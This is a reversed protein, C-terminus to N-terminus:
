FVAFRRWKPDASIQSFPAIIPRKPISTKLSPTIAHSHISAQMHTTDNISCGGLIQWKNSEVLTFVAAVAGLCREMSSFKGRVTDDVM